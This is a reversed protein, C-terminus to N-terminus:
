VGNGGRITGMITFVLCAIAVTAVTFLMLSCVEISDYSISTAVFAISLAMSVRITKRLIRQFKISVPRAYGFYLQALVAAIGLSLIFIGIYHM